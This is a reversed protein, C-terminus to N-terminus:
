LFCRAFFIHKKVLPVFSSVSPAFRYVLALFLNHELNRDHHGCVLLVNQFFTHVFTLRFKIARFSLHSANGLGRGRYGGGLRCLSSSHHCPWPWYQCSWFIYGM